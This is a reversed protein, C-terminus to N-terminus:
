RSPKSADPVETPPQGHVLRVVEVDSTVILGDEIMPEITDMAQNLKEETDIVTVM